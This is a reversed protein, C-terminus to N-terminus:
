LLQNELAYRTLETNNLMQMKQLIRYRYSSITKVSLNLASAIKSPTNGSAIMCM